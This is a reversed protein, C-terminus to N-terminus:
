MKVSIQSRLHSWYIPFHFTLNEWIFNFLCFSHRNWHSPLVPNGPSFAKSASYPVSLHWERTVKMGAISGLPGNRSFGSFNEPCFLWKRFQLRITKFLQDKLMNELYWFAFHNYLKIVSFRETRFICHFKGQNGSFARFNLRAVNFLLCCIAYIHPSHDWYLM